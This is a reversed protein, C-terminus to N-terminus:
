LKLKCSVCLKRGKVKQHHCNSQALDKLWRFFVVSKMQGEPTRFINATMSYHIEIPDKNNLTITSTM